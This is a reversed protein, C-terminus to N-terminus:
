KKKSSQKFDAEKILKTSITYNKCKDLDCDTPEYKYESEAEGLKAGFPDTFLNPDIATLNKESIERPYFGNQKYFHQLNFHIANIANKKKDDIFRDELEAKQIVIFIGVVVLFISAVIIEIATFGKKTM